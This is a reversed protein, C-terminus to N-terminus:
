DAFVVDVLYINAPHEHSNPKPNYEHSSYYSLWYRRPDKPHAAVGMYSTDGGSPLVVQCVPTTGDLRFVATNVYGSPQYWRGSLFPQDGVFWLCMGQLKIDLEEYSWETYPPRSKALLPHGEPYERRVLAWCTGDPAFEFATENPRPEGERVAVTSVNEWIRGDNTVKFIVSWDTVRYAAVYGRNQYWRPRWYIDEGEILRWPTWSDGDPSFSYGTARHYRVGGDDPYRVFSYSFLGEPTVMLKPDRTDAAARISAVVQWRDGEETGRLVLVRGDQSLHNTSHRFTCYPRGKFWCLDTFANHNGDAYVTLMRELKLQM